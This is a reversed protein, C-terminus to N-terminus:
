YGIQLGHIRRSKNTYKIDGVKLHFENKKMAIIAIANEKQQFKYRLRILKYQENPNTEFAHKLYPAIPNPYHAKIKM